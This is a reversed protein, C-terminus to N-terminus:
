APKIEREEPLEFDAPLLAISGGEIQNELKHMFAAKEMGPPIPPLFELVAVGPKLNWGDKPWFLGLNTAAPVVPCDYVEYMHFVGKKYPAHYGVEVLKGEPYIFIRRGENRAKVMEKDMLAARSEAGGCQAVVIADMKRLIWGVAPIKELHDGTVFALDHFQSFLSYGDGWSQHKAAIICAGDPVHEKGRIELTIGAITKMWFVMVRSYLRMLSMLPGRGPWLLLPLALLGATISTVLYAIRFLFGSM